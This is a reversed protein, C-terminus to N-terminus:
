RSWKKMRCSIDESMRFEEFANEFLIDTIFDFNEKTTM